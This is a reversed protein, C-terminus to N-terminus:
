ELEGLFRGFAEAGVSEIRERLEGYGELFRRGFETLESSGRASGGKQRILVPRGLEEETRKLIHLAKVYSLNMQRSARLISGCEAIRRLLEVVGPGLFAEGDRNGLSIKIHLSWDNKAPRKQTNMGANHPRGGGPDLALRRRRGGPNGGQSPRARADVGAWEAAVGRVNRTMDSRGGRVGRM